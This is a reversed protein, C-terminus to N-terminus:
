VNRLKKGADWLVIRVINALFGLVSLCVAPIIVYKYAPMDTATVKGLVFVVALAPGSTFILYIIIQILSVFIFELKGTGTIYALFMFRSGISYNTILYVLLLMLALALAAYGATVVTSAIESVDDRFLIRNGHEAGDILIRGSIGNEEVLDDVYKQLSNASMDSTIYGQNKVKYINYWRKRGEQTEPLSDKDLSRLPIFIYQNLEIKKGDISFVEDKTFYGTFLMKYNDVETVVEDGDNSPNAGGKTWDYGFMMPVKENYDNPRTFVGTINQMGAELATKEDAFLLHVKYSKKGDADEGSIDGDNIAVNLDNLKSLTATTDLYEYHSFKDNENLLENILIEQQLVSASIVVNEDGEIEFHYAKTEKEQTDGFARTITNELGVGYSFVAISLVTWILVLFFFHKRNKMM